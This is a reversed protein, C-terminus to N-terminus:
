RALRPIPHDEVQASPRRTQWVFWPGFYGRRASELRYTFWRWDPGFTWLLHESFKWSLVLETDMLEVPFQGAQYDLEYTYSADLTAKHGFLRPYFCHAEHMCPRFSEGGQRSVTYFVSVRRPNM